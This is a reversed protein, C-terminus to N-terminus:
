KSLLLLTTIPLIVAMSFGFIKLTKQKFIERDQSIITKNLKAVETDKNKIVTNLSMEALESNKLKAETAKLKDDLFNYSTVRKKDLLEYEFVLSDCIKKQLVDSLLLKADKLKFQVLTDGKSNITTTVRPEQKL